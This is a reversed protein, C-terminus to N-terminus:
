RMAAVASPLVATFETPRAGSARVSGGRREAVRQVLALGLGHHAVGRKTTFGERWIEELNAPSVGPGSDRVRITVVEASEAVAFEAWGGPTGAAADIANDVLNGVVTVLDQPDAADASLRADGALRLEVGRESAVSAKALLLAALTPDGIRERIRDVLEQHVLATRSILGVAEEIRGLEILGSVAHLKNVSGPSPSDVVTWGTQAQASVPSLLAVLLAGAALWAFLNIKFQRM